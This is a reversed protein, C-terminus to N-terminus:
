PRWPRLTTLPDAHVVISLREDSKDPVADDFADM